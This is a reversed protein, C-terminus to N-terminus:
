FAGTLKGPVQLKETVAAAPAGDAWASFPPLAAAGEQYSLHGVRNCIWYELGYKYFANELSATIIVPINRCALKPVTELDSEVLTRRQFCSRKQNEKAAGESISLTSTEENVLGKSSENQAMFCEEQVEESVTRQESETPLM